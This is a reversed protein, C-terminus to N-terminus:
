SIAWIVWGSSKEEFGGQAGEKNIQNCFNGALLWGNVGARTHPNTLCKLWLITDSTVTVM